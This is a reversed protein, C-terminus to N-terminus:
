DDLGARASGAYVLRGLRHDRDPGPDPGPFAPSLEGCHASFASLVYVYYVLSGITFWHGIPVDM